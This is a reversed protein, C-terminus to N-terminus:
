SVPYLAKWQSLFGRRPGKPGLAQESHGHYSFGIFGIGAAGHQLWSRPSELLFPLSADNVLENPLPGLLLLDADAQAAARASPQEGCATALLLAGAVPAWHACAALRLPMRAAVSM